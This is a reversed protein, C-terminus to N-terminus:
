AGSLYTLYQRTPCEQLGLISRITRGSEDSITPKESVKSGFGLM